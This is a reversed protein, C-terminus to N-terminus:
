FGADGTMVGAADSHGHSNGLLNSFTHLNEQFILTCYVVHM